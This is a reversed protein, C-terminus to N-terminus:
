RRRSGPWRLRDSELAEYARDASLCLLAPAEPTYLQAEYTVFVWRNGVQLQLLSGCYVPRGDLFHRLGGGDRGLVLEHARPPECEFVRLPAGPRKIPTKM